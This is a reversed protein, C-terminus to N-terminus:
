AAKSAEPDALAVVYAKAKRRKEPDGIQLFARVLERAEKALELSYFNEDKAM